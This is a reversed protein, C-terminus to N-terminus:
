GLHEEQRSRVWLAHRHVQSLTTVSNAPGVRARHEL